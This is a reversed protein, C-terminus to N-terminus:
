TRNIYWIPDAAISKQYILCGKEHAGELYGNGILFEKTIEKGTFKFHKKFLKIWDKISLKGQSDLWKEFSGYNKQIKQIQKANHIIATIKIRMRIIGPNNMLTAIEVDKFAAIKEINFEAYAKKISDKKILVTNWSLGAQNIELILSGFLENDNLAKFGYKTDHYKKHLDSLEGDCANKCYTNIFNM